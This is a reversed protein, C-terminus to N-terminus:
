FLCVCVCVQMIKTLCEEADQQMPVNREDREGFEPYLQRL